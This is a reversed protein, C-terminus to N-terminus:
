GWGGAGRVCVGGAQGRAEELTESAIATYCVENAGVSAAVVVAPNHFRRELLARPGRRGRRWFRKRATSSATM